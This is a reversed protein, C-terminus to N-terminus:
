SFKGADGKRVSTDVGASEMLGGTAVGVGGGALALADGEGLDYGRGGFQLTRRRSPLFSKFICFCDIIHLKLM